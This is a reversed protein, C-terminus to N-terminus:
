SEQVMSRTRKLKKFAFVFPFAFALLASVFSFLHVIYSLGARGINDLVFESSGYYGSFPNLMAFITEQDYFIAWFRDVAYIVYYLFQTELLATFYEETIFLLGNLGLWFAFCLAMLVTM